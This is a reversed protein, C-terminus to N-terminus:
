RDQSRDRAGYLEDAISANAASSAPPASVPPAAAAPKRGIALYLIAGVLNVLLIIAVWVWKNGFTVRERPRRVLDIIAIVDLAVEALAVIGLVVLVGAPLSSLNVHPTM